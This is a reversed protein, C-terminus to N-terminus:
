KLALELKTLKRLSHEFTWWFDDNTPDSMGSYLWCDGTTFIYRITFQSPEEADIWVEDGVKFLPKEM